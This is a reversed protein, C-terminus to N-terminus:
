AAAVDGRRDRARKVAKEIEVAWFVVSSLALAILLDPLSLAETKFVKQMFPVYITSLQLVFTLLVAGLMPKNSFIGLKFLSERDSRIAMAHGMQSLCLVTFVMTRWYLDHNEPARPMSWAQMFLSAGGMLLGVWILHTGLGDAFISEKPARPPREMISREHPESAFALGPLGDTVLNIWLIHIPLLPIPMGLLPALLITWIEGSNSTMTYKIFKRINDFIRRGERVSGVISSFNDDLLVMSAAEKAVDTGTIGMAVGIDATALAPADNVGDGTMAVYEGRDQLAQVIKLKQEPAVRAYVRIGEVRGEFDELSLADLETGTIMQEKHDAIGLRKAIALATAPHDGTIMVPIIGATKCTGVAQRAEERPPDVLGTYGILSLDQELASIDDGPLKDLRRMGFALVRLGEASWGDVLSAAADADLPVTSGDTIMADRSRELIAEAAGKTFSVYGGGPLEHVTTMLKRDSDFPAEAARPLDKALAVPDFGNQAAARYFAIETPDGVLEDNQGSVDNSLALAKGLWSVGDEPNALTDASLAQADGSALHEVTMQNLTLTGTKDTCIYTVSGLAEVAPLKRVLTHTKVLRSAGLALSITAVAPLAEPVAAVALSVATLFMELIDGGQVVGVIFVITCLGLAAMGLQKSFQALRKQLPTKVDGTSGLLHAIKGLETALGVGTVVAVGRGYVVQTGRYAMSSRDGIPSDVERVPDVHKEVPLSEGTLAAEAIRLTAADILRMDAPVIRGAELLVIDGVTLESAHIERTEGGRRVTATESAMEKLAEMAREARYEQVVGIVANLVVIVLIAITDVLEGLVGSIVAAGLLLLILFDKFQDFVMAPITRKEGEPLENPGVAEQRRTVEDPRLGDPTGDLQRLVEEAPVTHAAQVVFAPDLSAPDLPTRKSM